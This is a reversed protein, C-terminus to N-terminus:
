HSHAIVPQSPILIIHGLPAVHRNYCSLGNEHLFVSFVEHEFKEWVVNESKRNIKILNFSHWVKENNQDIGVHNWNEM